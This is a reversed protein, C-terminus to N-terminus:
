DALSSGTLINYAAPMGKAQSERGSRFSTPTEFRLLEKLLQPRFPCVRAPIGESLSRLGAEIIHTGRTGKQLPRKALTEASRRHPCGILRRAAIAVATPGHTAGAKRAIGTVNGPYHPRRAGSFVSETRVIPSGFLFEPARIGASPGNM